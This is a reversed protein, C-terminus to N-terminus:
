SNIKYHSIADKIWTNVEDEGMLGGEWAHWGVVVNGSVDKVKTVMGTLAIGTKGGNPDYVVCSQGQNYQGSTALDLDYFIIKNAYRNAIENMRDAQPQCSACGTQHVVFIVPKSELADLVWQPHTVSGGPNDAHQDKYNIRWDSEGGGVGYVPKTVCGSFAATSIIVADVMLAFAPRADRKGAGKGFVYSYENM